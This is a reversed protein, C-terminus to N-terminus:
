PSKCAPLLPLCYQEGGGGRRPFGAVLGWGPGSAEKNRHFSELTLTNSLCLLGHLRLQSSLCGAGAALCPAPVTSLAVCVVSETDLDEEPGPPRLILVLPWM